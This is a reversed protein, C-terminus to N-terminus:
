WAVASLTLPLVAKDPASYRTSPAVPASAFRGVVRDSEDLHPLDLLPFPQSEGEQRIIRGEPRPAISGERLVADLVVDTLSPGSEAPLRVPAERFVTYGDGGRLLYDNISVTYARRLDLPLGNVEVRTVRAGQPRRPDYVFRFGSVQLFGGSEHPAQSVAHELAALLKAGTLEVVVAVNLFPLLLHVDKKRLPGPPIVRNSRIGGANMLALDTKLRARLADAILNGLNTEQTRLASTRADLAVRSVGIEEELTRDLRATYQQVLAAMAPDEPITRTVPVFRHRRSRVAGSPSMWYDVRVVFAGDSGAKTIVTRGVEATLPDHEHGGLILDLPLARALLQDQAMEQHTVAVFLQSGDGQLREVAQRAGELPSLFVVNSGPSSLSETEPMTLGFIGVRIGGLEKLLRDRAPGFPRGTQRDRVNASVWVFRSERMRDLLVAPGFDFEHNGFTAVDLGLLNWAAVMQEGRLFTSVVSPSLTDGALALLTYPSEARIERVLTAIRAM